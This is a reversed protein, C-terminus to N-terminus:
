TNRRKDWSKMSTQTYKSLHTKELIPTSIVTSATDPVDQFSLYSITPLRNQLNHIRAKSPRPSGHHAQCESLQRQFDPGANYTSKKEYLSVEIGRANFEKM